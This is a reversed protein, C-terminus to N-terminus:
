SSTPALYQRFGQLNFRDNDNQVSIFIVRNTHIIQFSLNHSMLLSRLQKSAYEDIIKYSPLFYDIEKLMTSCREILTYFMTQFLCRGPDASSKLLETENINTSLIAQECLQVSCICESTCGNQNCKYFQGCWHNIFDFFIQYFDDNLLCPGPTTLLMETVAATLKIPNTTALQLKEIKLFASALTTFKVQNQQSLPKAISNIERAFVVLPKFKHIMADSLTNRVTKWMNRKTEAEIPGFVESHLNFNTLDM